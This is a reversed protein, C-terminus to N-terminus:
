VPRSAYMALVLKALELWDRSNSPPMQAFIERTYCSIFYSHLILLHEGDPMSRLQRAYMEKFAYMVYDAGDFNGPLDNMVYTAPPVVDDFMDAPILAALQDKPAADAATAQTDHAQALMAQPALTVKTPPNDATTPPPIRPDFPPPPGIAALADRERKMQEAVKRTM